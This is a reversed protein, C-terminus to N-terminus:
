KLKVGSLRQISLLTGIPVDKTGHVPVPVIYGGKAMMHHSGNIHSLKWGEAQLKKIIQKGNMTLIDYLM